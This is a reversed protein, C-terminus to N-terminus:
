LQNISQRKNEKQNKYQSPSIGCVKKFQNSLHQISSYHMFNAIESLTFEENEILEKIKEIKQMIYFQEITNGTEESFLTSLSKYDKGLKDALISSIKHKKLEDSYNQILEIIIVKIKEVTQKKKDALLEFGVKTLKLALNDLIDKEPVNSLTIKGLEIVIPLLGVSEFIDAVVMKCRDCVM